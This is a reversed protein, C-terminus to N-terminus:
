RWGRWVFVPLGRGNVTERKLLLVLPLPLSSSAAAADDVMDNTMEPSFRASKARTRTHFCKHHPNPISLLAPHHHSM